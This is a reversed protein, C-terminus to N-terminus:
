HAVYMNYSVTIIHAVAYPFVSCEMLSLRHGFLDFGNSKETYFECGWYASMISCISCWILGEAPGSIYGITFEDTYWLEFIQMNYACMVSWCCWLGTFNGMSTIQALPLMCLWGNISDLGHDLVMGLPSSNKLKRAQKGDANDWICFGIVCIPYLYITIWSPLCTSMDNWNTLTTAATITICMAFGFCTMLNASMWSPAFNEVLYGCLPSYVYNYTLSNDTGKYKSVKMHKEGEESLYDYKIFNM